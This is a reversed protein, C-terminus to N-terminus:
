QKLFSLSCYTYISKAFLLPNNYISESLPVSTSYIIIIYTNQCYHYNFSFLSTFILTCISHINHVVTPLMEVQFGSYLHRYILLSSKISKWFTSLRYSYSRIPYLVFPMTSKNSNNTFCIYDPYVM